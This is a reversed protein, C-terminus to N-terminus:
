KGTLAHRADNLRRLTTGDYLDSGILVRAGGIVSPDVVVKLAVARGYM